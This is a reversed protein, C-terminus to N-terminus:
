IITETHQEERSLAIINIYSGPRLSYGKRTFSFFLKYDDLSRMSHNLSLVFRVHEGRLLDEMLVQIYEAEELQLYLSM